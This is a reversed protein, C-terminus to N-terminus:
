ASLPRALGGAIANSALQDPSLTDDPTGWRRQKTLVAAEATPPVPSQMM